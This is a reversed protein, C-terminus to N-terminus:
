LEATRGQNRRELMGALPLVAELRTGKGPSSEITLQGGLLYARERMGDLGTSIGEPLEAPKFGAGEDVVLLRLVSDDAELHIHAQGVGAHRAVNTLGEQVLRYATTEVGPPFRRGDIAEHTLEVQLGTLTGM